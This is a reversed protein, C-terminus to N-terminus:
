AACEHGEKKEYLMRTGHRERTLPVRVLDDAYQVDSWIGEEMAEQDLESSDMHDM